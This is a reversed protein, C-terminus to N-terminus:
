KRSPGAWPEAGADPPMLLDVGDDREHRMAVLMQALLGFTLFQIGIVVLLVSLLLLPRDGIAEGSIKEITLYVGLLVGIAISVLGLGGFLHLPRNEYRGIFTVALLDLM